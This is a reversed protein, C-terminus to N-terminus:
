SLQVFFNDMQIRSNVNENEVCAKLTVLSLIISHVKKTVSRDQGMKINEKLFGRLFWVWEDMAQLLAFRDNGLFESLALGELIGGKLAERFIQKNKGANIRVERSECFRLAFRVRGHSLETCIKIEEQQKEPFRIKLFNAIDDDDYLGFRIPQCRSRITAIVRDENSSILCIIIDKAPEEVFKLLSNAATNTLREVESIIVVKYRSQYTYFSAKKIVNKVQDISIDKKRWKGNKEEVAPEVIIVDPHQKNRVIDKNKIDNVLCAFDIAMNLKGTGESGAFLYAHSLTHKENVRQLYNWQKRNIEM